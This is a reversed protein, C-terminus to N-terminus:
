IHYLDYTVSVAYEVSNSNKYYFTPWYQSRRHRFGKEFGSFVVANVFGHDINIVWTDTAKLIFATVTSDLSRFGSHYRSLTLASGWYNLQFIIEDPLKLGVFNESCLLFIHRHQKRLPSSRSLEKDTACLFEEYTTEVNGVNRSLDPGIETFLTNLSEAVDVQSKSKQRQYQIENIVTKTSKRSTLENLENLENSIDTRQGNELSQTSKPM